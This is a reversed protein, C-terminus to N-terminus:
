NATQLCVQVDHCTDYEPYDPNMNNYMIANGKTVEADSHARVGPFLTVNLVGSLGSSGGLGM